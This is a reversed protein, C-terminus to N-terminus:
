ESSVKAALEVFSTVDVGNAKVAGGAISESLGQSVQRKTQFAAIAVGQCRPFRSPRPELM